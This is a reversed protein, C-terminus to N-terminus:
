SSWNHQTKRLARAAVLIVVTLIILLAAAAAASPDVNERVGDWMKRPLTYVVRNAVFLTLVLEDWSMIFAFLAGSAVGGRISPLIVNVITKLRSAGLSRSAQELRVDVLSLASSITLVTFPAAVITHALIVGLWTDYLGVATWMRYLALASVITPVIMPAVMIATAVAVWRGAARWVGISFALGLVTSLFATACAIAFSDCMAGLWSQDTLVILVHRWSLSSMNAPMAIFRNENLGIPFVILTPLLLFLGVMWAMAILVVRPVGQLLMM